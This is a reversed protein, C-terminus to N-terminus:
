PLIAGFLYVDATLPNPNVTAINLYLDPPAGLAALLASTSGYGLGGILFLEAAAPNPLFGSLYMQILRVGGANPQTYIGASCNGFTASANTIIIGTPVIKPSTLPILVDGLKTFDVGLAFGIPAGDAM